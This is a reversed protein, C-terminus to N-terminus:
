VPQPKRASADWLRLTAEGACAITKGDPSLALCVFADGQPTPSFRSRQKGSKTDWTCVTGDAAGTVLTKGDPSYAVSALFNEHGRLTRLEKGTAVDWLKITNDASGSALTKSDPSFALANVDRDHGALTKLETKSTLDWLKVLKNRTGVAVIKGDPSVAVSAILDPQKLSALPERPEDAHTAALGDWTLFTVTLTLFRFPVRGMM